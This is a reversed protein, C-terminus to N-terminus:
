IKKHMKKATATAINKSLVKHQQKAEWIIHEDHWKRWRLDYSSSPSFADAAPVKDPDRRMILHAATRNNHAVAASLLKYGDLGPEGLLHKVLANFKFRVATNAFQERMEFSCQPMMSVFIDILAPNPNSQLSSVIDWTHFFQTKLDITDLACVRRFGEVNNHAVANVLTQTYIYHIASNSKFDPHQSIRDCVQDIYEPTDTKFNLSSFLQQIDM